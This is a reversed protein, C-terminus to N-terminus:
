SKVVTNDRHSKEWPFNPNGEGPSPWSRCLRAVWGVTCAPRKLTEMIWRVRVHVVPDKVHGCIYMCANACPLTGVGYSLRCQFNVRPSFDRVAVPFRVTDATHRDSARGVVDGWGWGSWVPVMTLYMQPLSLTCLPERVFSTSHALFTSFLCSSIRQCFCTNTECLALFFTPVSNFFTFNLPGFLYFNHLSFNKPLLSLM